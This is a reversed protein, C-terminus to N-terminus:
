NKADKEGKLINLKLKKIRKEDSDIIEMRLNKYEITEGTKANVYVPFMKKRFDTDKFQNILYKTVRLSNYGSVYDEGKTSTNVDKVDIIGDGNNDGIPINKSTYTFSPISMFTNVDSDIFKQSWIDESSVNNFGSLYTNEDILTFGEYAKKAYKSANAWDGMTLYVRAQIAAVAHSDIFGKYDSEKIGKEAESLDSLIQNYDEEVTSRPINYGDLDNVTTNIPVGRGNKDDTYATEGFMRVLNFYSFARLAYAQAKLDEKKAAEGEVDEIKQLFLNTNSIVRYSYRWFNYGPDSEPRFNYNYAGVYRGYNNASTVVVDEGMVEPILIGRTGEGTPYNLLSYIGTLHIEAGGISSFLVDETPRDSPSQELIEKSCSSALLTLSVFLISKFLNKM